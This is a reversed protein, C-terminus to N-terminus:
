GAGAQPHRAPFERRGRHVATVLRRGAGRGDEPRRRHRGDPRGARHRHGGRDRGPVGRGADTIVGDALLGDAELRAVAADGVGGGALARTGSYEGVPYGVWVESLVGMRVPDLGAAVSAAIHSDGRHERVADAARWLRGFPDSLRPQARLAAFLVRGSGDVADIARELVEAVAVAADESATTGITARLSEGTVRDRLAVMDKPKLAACGQEM